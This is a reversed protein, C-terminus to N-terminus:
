GWTEGFVRVFNGGLVKEIRADGHGRLSLMEALRELKRPGNFAEVFMFTEEDEGPAAIGAEKRAKVFERHSKRYADDVVVTSLDGDTGIGVHDEGAVEIVHEIHAIVDDATPQGAPRLFPMFYIGIVGGKDACARLSEDGTNRPHPHIAACGTHSIAVPRTAAAIGDAITKASAHSLDVTIGLEQMRAVAARGLESLGTDEPALCGSGLLGQLNYTPQAIRVGLGHLAELKGVDEGIMELSQTGYIFGVRSSEKAVRLDDPSRVRLFADQNAALEADLWAIVQELNAWDGGATVTFNFATLGSALADDIGKQWLHPLEEESAPDFAIGGLGDIVIARRYAATPDPRPARPGRLCAALSALGLQLIQRRHLTLAGAV